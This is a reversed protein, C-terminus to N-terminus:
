KGKGTYFTIVDTGIVFSGTGSIQDQVIQEAIFTLIEDRQSLPLKTRAKWNNASPIDLIVLADGGAFEWWMSFKTQDSEFIYNGGRGNNEYHLRPNGAPMTRKGAYLNAVRQIVDRIDTVFKLPVDLWAVVEEVSKGAELHKRALNRLLETRAAEMFQDQRDKFYAEVLKEAEQEADARASKAKDLEELVQDRISGANATIADAQKLAEKYVQEIAKSYEEQNM